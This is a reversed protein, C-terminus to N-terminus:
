IVQIFKQVETPAFSYFTKVYVLKVLLMAPYTEFNKYYEVKNYSNFMLPFLDFLNKFNQRLNAYKYSIENNKFYVVKTIHIFPKERHKIYRM